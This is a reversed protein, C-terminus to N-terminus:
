SCLQAIRYWQEVHLSGSASAACSHPYLRIPSHSKHKGSHTPVAKPAHRYQLLRRDLPGLFPCFFQHYRRIIRHPSRQIDPDFSTHDVTDVTVYKQDSQSTTYSALILTSFPWLFHVCRFTVALVLPIQGPM